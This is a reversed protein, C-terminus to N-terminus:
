RGPWQPTAGRGRAHPSQRAARLARALATTAAPWDGRTPRSTGQSLLSRLSRPRSWVCRPPFCGAAQMGSRQAPPHSDSLLELALDHPPTRLPYTRRYVPDVCQAEARFVSLLQLGRQARVTNSWRLNHTAIPWGFAARKPWHSREVEALARRRVPRCRGLALQFLSATRRHRAQDVCREEARYVSLLHQGRQARVTRTPAFQSDCNAVWVSRTQAM